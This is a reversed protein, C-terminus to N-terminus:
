FITTERDLTFGKIMNIEATFTLTIREAIRARLIDNNQKLVSRKQHVREM